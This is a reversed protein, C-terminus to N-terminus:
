LVEGLRRCRRRKCSNRSRRWTATLRKSGPRASAGMAYPVPCRRIFVRASGRIAAIFPPLDTRASRLGDILAKLQKRDRINDPFLVVGGITGDRLQASVAKVGWDAARSGPFGVMITQGIMANLHPPVCSKAASASAPSSDEASARGYTALIAAACLAMTMISVRRIHLSMPGLNPAFRPLFKFITARGRM